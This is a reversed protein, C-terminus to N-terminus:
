LGPNLLATCFYSILQLALVAFTIMQMIPQNNMLMASRMVWISVMVMFLLTALFCKYDPGLTFLPEGKYFCCVYNNGWYRNRLKTKVRRRKRKQNQSLDDEIASLDDDMIEDDRPVEELDDSGSNSGSEELNELDKESQRM